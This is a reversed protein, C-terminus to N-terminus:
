HQTAYKLIALPKHFTAMKGSVLDDLTGVRWSIGIESLVEQLRRHGEEDSTISFIEYNGNKRIRVINRANRNEKDVLLRTEWIKSGVGNTYFEPENPIRYCLTVESNEM